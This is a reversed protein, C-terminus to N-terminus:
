KTDFIAWVEDATSQIYSDNESDFGKRNGEEDLAFIQITEQSITVDFPGKGDLFKGNEDVVGTIEKFLPTTINNKEAPLIKQYYYYGDDMLTWNENDIHINAIEKPNSSVKIMDEPSVTLKVRVLAANEGTNTVKPDKEIIGDTIKVEEEIESEVSGVTFTNNVKNTIKQSLALTVGLGICSLLLCCILLLKFKYNKLM